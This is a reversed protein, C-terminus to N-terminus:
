MCLIKEGQSSILITQKQDLYLRVVLFVVFHGEGADLRRSGVSVVSRGDNERM